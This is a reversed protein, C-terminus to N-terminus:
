VGVSLGPRSERLSELHRKGNSSFQNARLWIRELSRRTLILSRLAPVSRDTFCNSGLSLDTLSRNTSLASSLDEACSDTLDVGDLDLKQIKCDPNRLAESLLKVGSDGLKNNSLNLVMLSRNTSLASSLDESCSGTLDNSWLDLDQIKCDPNRLAASLIKVGSDGLKNNSLDLGTLSRNTSLASSLDLTCSATLGNEWLGLTQIKCDPNRLAASLLKVGSDGLKNCGLRLVHCKHLVPGLRQLGECQISCHELNLHEITDCLGIVHSLVACDIPTLRLGSFTLKKVSGVTVRVLTQNQSEFLYHFTNLLIRKGTESATNGIEGEVKEKVWDIVACITQHLFPGLFEELPRASQSSSLGVVFRLFIEFRGDEKSHAESLLKRIDGPDPTLFQALAAVFEQITLHPFTYVVSQASDDRELLEMMFGSLFQSPQLNYKILDGNTFVIKKESVGTFAMEGIKLLVDRPSEIERGHNKLINYIYYSYLQTITRPVRQQKRDSQTFFPGLSLGLIWCYSPNYCMTYLIENEEVHKFVAAAVAQDEFYKNFYEKREEGVFGLIEAWVSIEAKELLHSATPRSTVLVSCGPLLKHQILSYVIDSVKCRCEPDTCMYQPETNRQDDAFEISDKFEDLGDFIFLLGEPNKWLEGLINRLYPYFILILNWLNIRCNLANLERFKFSFVFQFHPYIQGTAWDYVIKQVMTTKGIGAVGSVAASSGSKSKRRSFSSQFLQDTRIKELEGRLHKERWEEHDRGRALLEHEVLTRDRVTSIVTLETYLTVLQFIKVKEKILITNVRLTETQVRLTEKHKQQVDKLHSPIESLGRGINMYDFPDPGLEQLEKLIKDLKPLRHMKVFSEWMVRRTRSGKEMVLNLLLNSSNAKNGMEALETVKHYEQGSFHDEGTLMLSLGEVGEEIAQEIRDRYFKTLQFLQYDDCKTLVDTIATNPDTDMRMRRSPTPDEGRNSGKAMTTVFTGVNQHEDGMILQFRREEEAQAREAEEFREEADQLWWEVTQFWQEGGGRSVAAKQVEVMTRFRRELAQFRREVAQIRDEAPAPM